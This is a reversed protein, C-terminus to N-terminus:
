PEVMDAAERDALITLTSVTLRRPPLDDGALLRRLAERKSAGTVLLLATETQSLAQLTLTIREPPPKPAQRVPAM